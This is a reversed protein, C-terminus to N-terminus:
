GCHRVTRGTCVFNEACAAEKWTEGCVIGFYFDRLVGIPQRRFSRRFMLALTLTM